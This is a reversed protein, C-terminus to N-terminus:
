LQHLVLSFGVSIKGPQKQVAGTCYRLVGMAVARQRDEIRHASFSRRKEARQFLAIVGYSDVYVCFGQSLRILQQATGQLQVTELVFPFFTRECDGVARRDAAYAVAEAGTSFVPLCSVLKREPQQVSSGETM